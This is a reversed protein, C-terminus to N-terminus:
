LYNFSNVFSNRFSHTFLQYPISYSLQRVKGINGLHLLLARLEKLLSQMELAKGAKESESIL